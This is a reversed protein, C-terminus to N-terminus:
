TRDTRSRLWEECRQKSMQLFLRIESVGTRGVPDSSLPEEQSESKM